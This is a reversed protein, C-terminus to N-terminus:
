NKAYRYLEAAGLLAINEKESVEIRLKKITNSFDFSQLSQWMTHQYYSYAKSVSGGIVIMQPDYAFLISKIAEGLHYGYQAFIELAEKDNQKAREFLVEGAIRFTKTFFQGSCYYEYISDRYPIMGFEGAGCNHGEYLQDRIMIGGAFGTGTILGILNSIGQGKGYHYEGLVYCNADNNVYVPRQYRKEFLEKVPVKKWSPINQVEYVIGKVTDVVSPIGIGIFNAKDIELSDVIHFISELVAKETDKSPIKQEAVSEIHGNRVLAARVYTGGLDIGIQSQKDM